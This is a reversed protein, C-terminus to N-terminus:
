EFLFKNGGEDVSGQNTGEFRYRKIKAKPHTMQFTCDKYCIGQVLIVFNGDVVQNGL